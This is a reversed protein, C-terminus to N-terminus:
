GGWLWDFGAYWPEGPNKSTTIADYAGRAVSRAGELKSPTDYGLLSGGIRALADASLLGGIGYTAIPHRDILDSIAPLDREHLAILKRQLSDKSADNYAKRTDRSMAHNWNGQTYGGEAKPVYFLPEEDLIGAKRGLKTAGRAIDAAKNLLPSENQIADTITTRAGEKLGYGLGRAIEGGYKVMGGPARLLANMAEVVDNNIFDYARRPASTVNEWGGEIRETPATYRSYSGKLETEPLIRRRGQKDVRFGAETSSVTPAHSFEIASFSQGPDQRIAKSFISEEPAANQLYAMLEIASPDHQTSAQTEALPEYKNNWATDQIQRIEDATKAAGMVSDLADSTSSQAARARLNQARIRNLEAPPERFDGPSTIRGPKKALRKIKPWVNGGEPAQALLTEFADAGGEGAMGRGTRALRTGAAGVRSIPATAGMALTTPDVNINGTFNGGEDFAEPHWFYEWAAPIDKLDFDRYRSLIDEILRMVRNDTRPPDYSTSIDALRGLRRKIDEIEASSSDSAPFSEHYNQMRATKFLAPDYTPLEGPIEYPLMRDYYDFGPGFQNDYGAM